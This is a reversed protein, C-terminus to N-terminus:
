AAIPKRSNCNENNLIKASENPLKRFVWYANEQKLEPMNEFNMGFWGTLVGLPATIASIYTFAKMNEQARFGVLGMRLDRTDIANTEIEEALQCM